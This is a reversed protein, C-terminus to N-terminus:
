CRQLHKLLRACGIHQIHMKV